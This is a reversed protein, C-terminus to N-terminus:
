RSTTTSANAVVEIPVPEEESGNPSPAERSSREHRAAGRRHSTRPALRGTHGDFGDIFQRVAALVDAQNAKTSAAAPGALLGMVLAAAIKRM